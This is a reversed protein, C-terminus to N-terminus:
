FQVVSEEEHEIATGLIVLCADGGTDLLAFGDADYFEKTFGGLNGDDVHPIQIEGRISVFPHTSEPKRELRTLYFPDKDLDLKELARKRADDIHAPGDHFNPRPHDWELRPPTFSRAPPYLPDIRTLTSCHITFNRREPVDEILKLAQLRQKDISTNAEFKSVDQREKTIVDLRNSHFKPSVNGRPTEAPNVIRSKTPTEPEVRSTHLSASSSLLKQPSTKAPPHSTFTKILAFCVAELFSLTSEQENSVLSKPIFIEEFPVKRILDIVASKSLCILHDTTRSYPVSYGSPPTTFPDM